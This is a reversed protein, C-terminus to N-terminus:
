QYQGYSADDDYASNHEGESSSYDEKRRQDAGLSRYHLTHEEPSRREDAGSSHHKKRRYRHGGKHPFRKSHHGRKKHKNKYIHIIYVKQTKDRQKSPRHFTSYHGKSAYNPFHDKNPMKYFHNSAQHMKKPTGYSKSPTGYAKTPAGYAKKPRGYVKSPASKVNSASGYTRAPAGYPRIPAGYQVHKQVHGKDTGGRFSTYSRHRTGSPSSYKQSHSTSPPRAGHGPVKVSVPRYEVGGHGVTATNQFSQQVHQQRWPKTASLSGRQAGNSPHGNVRDATVVESTKLAVYGALSAAQEGHPKRYVISSVEPLTKPLNGPAPTASPHLETGHEPKQSPVYVPQTNTRPTIAVVGPAVVPSLTVPSITVPFTVLSQSLALGTLQRQDGATGSSAGINLRVGSATPSDSALPLQWQLTVPSPSKVGLDRVPGLTESVNTVTGSDVSINDASTGTVSVSMLVLPVLGRQYMRVSVQVHHLTLVDLRLFVISM